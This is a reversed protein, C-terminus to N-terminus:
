DISKCSEYSFYTGLTSNANVYKAFGNVLIKIIKLLFLELKLIKIILQKLIFEMCGQETVQEKKLLINWCFGQM